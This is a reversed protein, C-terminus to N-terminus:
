FGETDIIKQIYNDMYEKPFGVLNGDGDIKM